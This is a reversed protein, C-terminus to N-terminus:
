RVTVPICAAQESLLASCFRRQDPEDAFGRARLRYFTRGGSQASQIVREKDIMLDGFQASLRDWDARAADASDFAGLQVLRMGSVLDSGDSEVVSAAATMAPNRQLTEPRPMPRPSQAVVGEPLSARMEADPMPGDTLAETLAAMVADETQIEATEGAPEVAGAGLRPAASPLELGPAGVARGAGTAAQPALTGAADEESLSVPAPALILRDAPPSTVGEEAVSNVSLGQNAAIEGGQDEPSFRMPGELARVVPIGTMDRVALQYGWIGLGLVLVLSIMAGAFHVYRASVQTAPVEGYDDFEVDAM